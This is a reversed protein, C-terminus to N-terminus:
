CVTPLQTPQESTPESACSSSNIQDMPWYNVIYEMHDTYLM